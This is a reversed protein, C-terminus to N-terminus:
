VLDNRKFVRAYHRCNCKCDKTECVADPPKHRVDKFQKHRSCCGCGMLGEMVEAREEPSYCDKVFLIFVSEKRDCWDSGVYDAIVQDITLKEVPEPVQSAKFEAEVAEREDWTIASWWRERLDMPLQFFISM